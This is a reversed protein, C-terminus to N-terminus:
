TCAGPRAHSDSGRPSAANSSHLRGKRLVQPYPQQRQLIFSLRLLSPCSRAVIERPSAQPHEPILPSVTVRRPLKPSTKLPVGQMLQETPLVKQPSPPPSVLRHLEANQPTSLTDETSQTTTRTRSKVPRPWQQKPRVLTQQGTAKWNALAESQAVHEGNDLLTSAVFQMEKRASTLGEIGM